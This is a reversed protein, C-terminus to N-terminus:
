GEYYRPIVPKRRAPRTYKERSYGTAIVAFIREKQPIDLARKIGPDRKIAEVVFGIMCTGLGMAHAALLINQSAMLADECPCSAGPKMGIIIAAPAGHFLQDHWPEKGERLNEKRAEHYRMYYQGLTDDSNLRHFFQSTMASLKEVASRYPLITFTWLQSNTGSPATAGIKVLDELMDKGVPKSSFMRCSRRSRMLQVLLATDFDGHKLWTDNNKVTALKLANENVGHVAIAGVPCIAACHDCQISYNGTVIARGEILSITNSPCIDVCLGCGTCLDNDIETTVRLNM